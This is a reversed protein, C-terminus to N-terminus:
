EYGVIAERAAPTMRQWERVKDENWVGRSGDKRPVQRLRHWESDMAAKAKPIKRYECPPIPKAVCANYWPRRLKTRHPQVLSPACPMRPAEELEHQFYNNWSDECGGQDNHPSSNNDITDFDARPNNTVHPSVEDDESGETTTLISALTGLLVALEAHTARKSNGSQRNRPDKTSTNYGGPKCVAASVNDGSSSSSGPGDQNCGQLNAKRQKDYGVIAERAAPTMRQWEDRPLGDPRQRPNGPKARLRNGYVDYAYRRNRADRRWEHFNPHQSLDSVETTHPQLTPTPTNTEQELVTNTELTGQDDEDPPQEAPVYDESLMEETTPCDKRITIITKPALTRRARDYGEKMMFQPIPDTVKVERIRAPILNNLRRPTEFDHDDFRDKPFILMEKKWQGGPQLYYGAFLGVMARPEFKPLARVTEARPLFDVTSGFPILPGQFQGKNHRKNWPSDGNTVEVNHMHCWHRIAYVWFCSPLGAHELAARAGEVATRVYGECAGNAQHRGPTAKGHPVRLVSLARKLEHASDSWVYVDVPKDTGFYEVFAGFADDASKTALPFVDLYGSYRDVILLADREGTM